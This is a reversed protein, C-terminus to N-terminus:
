IIQFPHHLTLLVSLHNKSIMCTVFYIFIFILMVKCQFPSCTYLFYITGKSVKKQYFLPGSLPLLLIKTNQCEDLFTIKSIAIRSSTKLEDLRSFIWFYFIPNKIVILICEDWVSTFYDDFNELGPKLLIHVTFERINLSSKSFASVLSWIALMQLIMSFALSNWFFM